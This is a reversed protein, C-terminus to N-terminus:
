LRRSGLCEELAAAVCDWHGFGRLNPPSTCWPSSCLSRRQAMPAGSVTVFQQSCHRLDRGRHGLVPSSRTQNTPHQAARTSQEPCGPKVGAERSHTSARWSTPQAAGSTSAEPWPHEGRDTSSKCLCLFIIQWKRDQNEGKRKVTCKQSKSAESLQANEKSLLVFIGEATPSLFSFTLGM